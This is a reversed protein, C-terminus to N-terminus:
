TGNRIHHLVLLESVGDSSKVLEAAEEAAPARVALGNQACCATVACTFLFTSQYCVLNFSHAHVPEHM